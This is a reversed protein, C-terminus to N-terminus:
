WSNTIKIQKKGVDLILKQYNKKNDLQMGTIAYKFVM